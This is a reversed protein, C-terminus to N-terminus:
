KKQLLSGEKENPLRDLGDRAAASEDQEMLYDVLKELGAVTFKHSYDKLMANVFGPVIFAGPNVISEIVYERPTAAQATGNEVAKRYEPSQIRDAASKKMILLPGVMGKKAISIGPIKHCAYCAMKRIIEEPTDIATSHSDISIHSHYTLNSALYIDEPTLRLKKGFYHEWDDKATVKSFDGPTDQSQIYAAVAVIEFDTLAIPPKNIIPMASETDNTGKIGYGVPIYCGPCYESEIIYEGGREAHPRIGTNPEGAEHRTKFKQYREEKIRQHSLAEIGMLVPARDAKQEKFFQHCLPCQGKGIPGEGRAPVALPNDTGFLVIKGIRALREPSIENEEESLLKFPTPSSSGPISAPPPTKQGSPIPRDKCSSFFFPFILFFMMVIRHGTRKDQMM